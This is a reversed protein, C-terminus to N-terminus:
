ENYDENLIKFIFGEKLSKSSQIIKEVSTLELITELFITGLLMFEARFPPLGDVRKLQDINLTLLHKHIKNFESATIIYSESKAAAFGNKQFSHIQALSDFTGASGILLDVKTKQLEKKFDLLATKYYEKISQIQNNDIPYSPNFLQKIRGVGLNYSKSFLNEKKSAISIENSGGGIDLLVANGEWNLSSKVGLYILEAEEEGSIIKISQNFKSNLNDIFVSGNTASRIASTAIGYIKSVGFLKATKLHQEITNYGRKIPLEQLYNNSFSGEGIKVPTKAEHIIKPSKDQIEVILLNFTNSGLDLVAIKKM